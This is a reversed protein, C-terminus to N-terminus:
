EGSSPACSRRRAASFGQARVERFPRAANTCGEGVRRQLHAVFPDLLTRRRARPRNARPPPADMGAYRRVTKRDHGTLRAVASLSMGRGVLARILAHRARRNAEGRTPPAALAAGSGDAVPTVPAEAPPTL